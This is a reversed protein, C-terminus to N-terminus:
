TNAAAAIKAKKNNKAENRAKNKAAKKKDMETKHHPEIRNYYDKAHEPALRRLKM